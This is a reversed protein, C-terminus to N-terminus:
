IIIETVCREFDNETSDNDVVYNFNPYKDLSTEYISEDYVDYKWGRSERSQNTANIRITTITCEPCNTVLYDYQTEKVRFDDIIYVDYEHRNIFQATYNSFSYPDQTELFDTLAKRHSDKYDHDSMFREFDLKNEKCFMMKLSKSFSTACVKKYRRLYHSKLIQACTSKGCFRKGSLMIIKPARGLIDAVFFGSLMSATIGRFLGTADGIVWINEGKVKLNEDLDPYYGVGEITPGHLTFKGNKIQAKELFSIIGSEILRFVEQYNEPVKEIDTTYVTEGDITNVIMTTTFPPTDYAKELLRISKEDRFITNFGFNSRGSPECDARGSCTQLGDFNTTTVIGDRCWCFTRREISGHEGHEEKKVFKPDNDSSVDYLKCDSTSEVRCGLEVRRFIMPIFKSECMLKPCFRGGGLVLKKSLVRFQENTETNECFVEYLGDNRKVLQTVKTKLFIKKEPDDYWKITLKKALEKRQELSMYVSPYSKLKWQDSANFQISEEPFDPVVHEQNKEGNENVTIFHPNMTKKFFEYVERLRDNQLNWVKTGSPFFPIKGDSFLGAGGIGHVVGKPCNHSRRNVGIGMEIMLVNKYEPFNEAFYYSASSVSVGGGVFVIDYVQTM